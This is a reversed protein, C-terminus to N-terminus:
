TRAHETLNQPEPIRNTYVLAGWKSSYNVPPQPEPTHKTYVLAGQPGNPCAIQLPEHSWLANRTSSLVGLAMQVQLKCPNPAGHPHIKRFTLPIM